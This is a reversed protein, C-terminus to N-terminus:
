LPKCELSIAPAHAKFELKAQKYNKSIETLKQIADKSSAYIMKSKLPVSEPVWIVVLDEKKSEKTKYTTDYLTYSRGNSLCFLVAKKCNKREEPILSKQMNMKSYMKIVGDM